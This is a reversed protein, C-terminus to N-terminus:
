DRLVDDWQDAVTSLSYKEVARESAATSMKARRADDELIEVISEQLQEVRHPADNSVIIGVDDIVIESPGPCDTSVVPTGCALSEILVIGFLETWGEIPKSPAVFVSAQSYERVLEETSLFGLYDMSSSEAVANAMPGNGAVKITIGEESLSDAIELLAPIGKREELRGVYLVTRNETPKNNPTYVETDVCHPIHTVKGGLTQVANAARETVSVTVSNDILILWARYTIPDILTSYAWNNTSWDPWSTYYLCQETLYSFPVVPIVLPHLPGMGVVISDSRYIEIWFSSTFYCYLFHHFSVTIRSESELTRLARYNKKAINGDWGGEAIVVISDSTM